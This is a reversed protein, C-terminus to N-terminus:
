RDAFANELTYLVKHAGTEPNVISIHKGQRETVWINGDAGWVMEWPNNLNDILVSAKYNAEGTNVTPNEVKAYTTASMLILTALLTKKM